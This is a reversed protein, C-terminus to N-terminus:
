IEEKILQVYKTKKNFPEFPTGGGEYFKGFFEVYQLRCSHVFAGLGNIAFNFVHGIVLIVLFLIVGIISNSMFGGLMNVVQSIVTTALGLALLRSYSLIDSIYSTVGYLNWLGVAKGIGKSIFFPLVLIGATAGITIWQGVVGLGEKIYSDGALWLVLGIIMLYWCFVDNFAELFKGEKIYARAKIGMGIFIHITGFICSYMLLKIPNTIPDFWLPKLLMDPNDFFKVGIVGTLDGFCSGFMIGWFATAVGAYAFSKVLKYVTGELNFKKLMLTCVLTLIIGYAIDGFMLGFFGLYFMSYIPTPDIEKSNPLSYLETIVEVPQVLSNNNFLIPKEEEAEPEYLEYYCDYEDFLKSIAEDARTPVWGELYFTRKTQLTKRNAKAADREMAFKDHLWKIEKLYSVMEALALEIKEIESDTEEKEKTLKKICQSPTGELDKFVIRNFGIEKYGEKVKDEEGKVFFVSLYIQGDDSAIQSVECMSTAMEMAEKVEAINLANSVTGLNIQTYKTETKEVPISYEEWPLLGVITTEIKNKKGNLNKLSSSLERVKDIREDISVDNSVVKEFAEKNVSERCKFLPKKSTDYADLTKVVNEIVNIKSELKSVDEDNGGKNVLATWEEDALKSEQSSLQTVGFDMLKNILSDRFEDLGIVFFKNMREVAM